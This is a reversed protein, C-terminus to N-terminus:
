RYNWPKVGGAKSTQPEAPLLHHPRAASREASRRKKTKGEFFEDSTVFLSVSLFAHRRHLFPTQKESRWVFPEEFSRKGSGAYNPKIEHSFFFYRLPRYHTSHCSVAFEGGYSNNDGEVMMLLFLDFRTLKTVLPLTPPHRHSFFSSWFWSSSPSTQSIVRFFGHETFAPLNKLIDTFDLYIILDPIKSVTSWLLSILHKFQPFHVM